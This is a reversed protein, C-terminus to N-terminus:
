LRLVGTCQQLLFRVKIAATGVAGGETLSEM